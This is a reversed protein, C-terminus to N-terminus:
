EAKIRVTEGSRGPFDRFLARALAQANRGREALPSRDTTAIEARGEWLNTGGTRADRLTVALQTGTTPRAGGGLNIGVGLGVGSGYTGTSGGVGVSVPSRRGEASQAFREVRVQAIQGAEARTSERYGLRTLEAAVAAKYPAAELGDATGPASEVFVTGQGLRAVGDPATFRTVEIPGQPTACAALMLPLALFAPAFRRM